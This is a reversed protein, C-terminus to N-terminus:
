KTRRGEFKPENWVDTYIKKGAVHLVMFPDFTFTQSKKTLEEVCFEGSISAANLAKKIQAARLLAFAPVDKQYKALPTSKWSGTVVRREYDRYYTRSIRKAEVRKYAEVKKNDFPEIDLERFIETVKRLTVAKDVQGYGLVDKVEAMLVDDTLSKLGAVELPKRELKVTEIKETKM